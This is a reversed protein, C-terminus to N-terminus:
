CLADALLLLAILSVVSRVVTNCLSFDLGEEAVSTCFIVNFEGTRFAEVKARQQNSAMKADDADGLGQSGHGVLFGSKIWAKTETAKEVIRSLVMAHQRRQVFVIARLEVGRRHRAKEQALVDLLAQVKPSISDIDIITREIKATVVELADRLSQTAMFKLANIKTSIMEQIRLDSGLEGIELKTIAMSELTKDKVEIEDLSRVLRENVTLAHFPLPPYFEVLREHPKPAAKRMSPDPEVEYM